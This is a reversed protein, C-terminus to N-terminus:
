PQEPAITPPEILIFYRLMVLTLFLQLFGNASDLLLSLWATPSEGVLQYVWWDLLWLPLLVALLCALLPWFHGTSLTLSGRLAALPTYGRLVLLYEAFALKVMVWLGPLVLVQAGFQRAIHPGDDSSGNDVVILECEVDAAHAAKQAALLLYLCAGGNWGVLFATLPPMPSFWPALRALVVGFLIAVLLRPHARLLRLPLSTHPRNM